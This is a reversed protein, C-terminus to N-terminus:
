VDESNIISSSRYVELVDVFNSPNKWTLCVVGDHEKVKIRSVFKAEIEQSFVFVAINIVILLFLIKKM